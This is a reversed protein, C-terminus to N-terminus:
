VWGDSFPQNLKIYAATLSRALSYSNVLPNLFLADEALRSSRTILARAATREYSKMRRILEMPGEPLTSTLASAAFAWGSTLSKMLSEAVAFFLLSVRCAVMYGFRRSTILWSNGRSALPSSVGSCNQWFSVSAAAFFAYTEPSLATQAAIAPSRHWRDASPAIATQSEDRAAMKVNAAAKVSAKALMM